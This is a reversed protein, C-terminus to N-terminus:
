DSETCKECYVTGMRVHYRVTDGINVEGECSDCLTSVDMLLSKFGEYPIEEGFLVKNIPKQKVIDEKYWAEYALWRQILHPALKHQILVSEMLAERHAFIEETIVMWHHGNRPREGFFVKEGTFIQYLFSYVKEILRQKTVGVFYPKLIDDEFVETYFTTLIRTLLAGNQMAAWMEPDPPPPSREVSHTQTQKQAKSKVINAQTEFPDSYIWRANADLALAKEQAIQVMTPNGSLYVRYDKLQNHQTFAIDTLLGYSRREDQTIQANNPASINTCYQYHFNKYDQTLANLATTLYHGQPSDSGHFLYIDGHHEKALAERVLGIHPSLGTGTSLLLLPQQPDDDHYYCEGLAGHFRIEDGVQVCDTLWPSMKGNPVHKIHLELYYDLLSTSALSYSRLVPPNGANEENRHLIIFQGAQYTLQNMPELLLRVVDDSLKEKEAILAQITMDEPKPLSIQMDEHPVCQCIKFYNKEVLATKLGKQSIKTPCGEESRMLCVHCVGDKCSFPVTLGNRLCVDLVTEGERCRYKKHDYQISYM